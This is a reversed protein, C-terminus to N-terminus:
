VKLKKPNELLEKILNVFGAAAAGDAVRHDFSFSIPLVKRIIVKGNDGVVKDEMRGIGLIASEPYNIIPTFFKGGISGINTITFSGGKLEALDIERKGAKDGFEQIEKAIQFIDKKEAIKIVPVMLGEETAVAIGINFYKKIVIDEDELSSNFVPYEKLAAIVAKVIFPLYTMKIKKKEATKKNDERIKILEDMAIEDMHTVHPINSWSESMKKAIAKRVGKLPIRDLYGYMDYKKKVLSKEKETNGLEEEKLFGKFKGINIGLEEAIKRTRPMALVEGEPAVELEGVVGYAKGPMKKQESKESKGPEYKEGKEGIVVIVQGVKVKEGAKVLIKLIRGARPSPIDVVAKDTEVKGLIQDAKVSDGEKVDWEVIEGEEIGEGIDPFRFEFTM